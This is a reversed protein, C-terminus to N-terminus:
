QKVITVEEEQQPLDSDVSDSPLSLPIDLINDTESGTAFNQM